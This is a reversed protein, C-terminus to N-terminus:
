PLYGHCSANVNESPTQVGKSTTGGITQEIWGGPFSASITPAKREFHEAGGGGGAGREAPRFHANCNINGSPTIVAKNTMTNGDVVAIQLVRGVKAYAPGASLAVVMSLLMTCSAVLVAVRKRLVEEM